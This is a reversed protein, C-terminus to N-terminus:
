KKSTLAGDPFFARNGFFRHNTAANCIEWQYFYFSTLFSPCDAQSSSNHTSQQCSAMTLVVIILAYSIQFVYM